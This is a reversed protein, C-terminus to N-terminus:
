HVRPRADIENWRFGKGMRVQTERLASGRLWRAASAEAYPAVSRSPRHRQEGFTVVLLM